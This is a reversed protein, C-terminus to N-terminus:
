QGDLLFYYTRLVHRLAQADTAFPHDSPHSELVENLANLLDATRELAEQRAVQARDLAKEVKRDRHAPAQHTPPGIAGIEIFSAPNGRGHLAPPSKGTGSLPSTGLRVALSSMVEVGKNLTLPRGRFDLGAVPATYGPTVSQALGISRDSGSKESKRTPGTGRDGPRDPTRRGPM